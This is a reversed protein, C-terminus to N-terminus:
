VKVFGRSKNSLQSSTQNGEYILARQVNTGSLSSIYGGDSEHAGINFTDCTLHIHKM